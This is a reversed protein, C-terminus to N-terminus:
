EGCNCSFSSFGVWLRFIECVKAWCVVELDEQTGAGGRCDKVLRSSRGLHNMLYHDVVGANFYVTKLQERLFFM